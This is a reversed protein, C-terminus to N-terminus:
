IRCTVRRRLQLATLVEEGIDSKRSIKIEGKRGITATFFSEGDICVDVPRGSYEPELILVINQKSKRIEPTLEAWQKAEERRGKKVRDKLPEVDIKIGVDGEVEQINKGGKGILRPIEWEEVFVKASNEGTIEVQVDGEVHKRILRLLTSEAMRDRASLNGDKGGKVPMVVVQEGYTYIEFEAKKTVFDRVEIVPRALDAEQMGHPVKVTFSLELITDIRGKAIHIVTDVVQPIMGLEVRGILRQVADIARNAHTVGVLGVGALRMDAFIKFDDTKRVEDYVVFDPRVLLLIDSTLAMDRELPGYQTIEDGVQLDRPSEMTKVIAGQRSLHEAIAQAFTSKGSGPPGSVFVGRSYDQLRALLEPALGYDSIGLKVVPRVATIEVGDAFPPRAIAIRMNGLQVVTAGHREIEVFSNEDRKAAEIIDRAMRSLRKEDLVEESLRVLEIKAPEGRKALPACNQKLHVSMTEADFYKMLELESVAKTEEERREPRLYTVRIGKSRAVHSQVSDSTLLTGGREQAVRRIMADIEGSQALEIDDLSPREGLFEIRVGAADKLQQIKILEDLGNFGTERGQNAQYELEAIVAEHILVDANKIDGRQLMLTIRGDVIVSTDPVLITRAPREEFPTM